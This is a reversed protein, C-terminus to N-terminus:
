SGQLLNLKAEIRDIAQKLEQVQTYFANAENKSILTGTEHTLFDKIDEISEKRSNKLYEKAKLFPKSVTDAFGPSTAQSIKYVIDIDVAEVFKYFEKLDKLSGEYELKDEMILEQMNKNFLLEIIYALKGQLVNTSAINNAFLNQGDSTLTITYDVDTIIVTLSKDKLPQLLSSAQPDLKPFIKLAKNITEIM